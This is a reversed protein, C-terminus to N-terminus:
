RQGAGNTSVPPRVVALPLSMRQWRRDVSFRGAKPDLLLETGEGGDITLGTATRLRAGDSLRMLGDESRYGLKGAEASVGVNEIRVKGSADLSELDSPDNGAGFRGRAETARLIWRRAEATAPRLFEGLAQRSDPPPNTRATAPATLGIEYNVVVGGRGGFGTPVSNTGLDVELDACSMKWTEGRTAVVQGSFRAQSPETVFRSASVELSPGLATGDPRASRWGVQVRDVAQFSPVEPHIVFREARGRHAAATWTPEQTVEIVEHEGVSYVMQGGHLEVPGGSAAVRAKVGGTAVMHTPRPTEVTGETTPTGAADFRAVLRGADAVLREGQAVHVPGEFVVERPNGEISAASIELPPAGTGTPAPDSAVPAQGTGARARVLTWRAHGRASYADKTPLLVLDDAEGHGGAFQWKAPGAVEVREGDPTQQFRAGSGEVRGLRGPRLLEITVGQSAVIADPKEAQASLRSGLEGARVRAQGPELAEADGLFRADGTRLNYEFRRSRVEVPARNTPAGPRRLTTAVRNSVVLVGTSRNWAWGEGTISFRNNPGRLVISRDSEAGNAGFVGLPSEVIIETEKDPAYRYTELRFETVQVQGALLSPRAEKGSVLAVTRNNESIPAKFGYVTPAELGGAPKAGARPVPKSAAHAPPMCVALLGLSAASLVLVATCRRRYKPGKRELIKM